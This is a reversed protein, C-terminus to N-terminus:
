KMVVELNYKKALNKVQRLTKNLIKGQVIIKLGKITGLPKAFCEHYQKHTYNRIHRTPVLKDGKYESWVDGSYMKLIASKPIILGVKSQHISSKGKSLHECAVEKSCNLLEWNLSSYLSGKKGFAGMWRVFM